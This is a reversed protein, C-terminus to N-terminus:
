LNPWKILNLLMLDSKLVWGSFAGPLRVQIYDNDGTTKAGIIHVENGMTLDGIIPQDESPATRVHVSEKAILAKPTSEEVSKILVGASLIMFLILYIFFSWPWKPLKSKEIFAKKKEVFYLKIQKLIQIFFVFAVILLVEIPIFKLGLANMQEIFTIQHPQQTVSFLHPNIKEFDKAMTNDPNLALAKRHYLYSWDLAEKEKYVLSINHALVSAQHKSQSQDLLDSYIVLAEDWNKAQHLAVANSFQDQIDVKAM